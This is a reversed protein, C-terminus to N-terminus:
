LRFRHGHFEYVCDDRHGRPRKCRLVVNGNFLTRLTFTRDCKRVTALVFLVRAVDRMVKFM